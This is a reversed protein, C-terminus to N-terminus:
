CSLIGSQVVVWGSILGLGTWNLGNFGGACIKGLSGEGRGGWRKLGGVELGEGGERFFCPSVYREARRVEGSSQGGRSLLVQGVGRAGAPGDYQAGVARPHHRGAGAEPANPRRLRRRQLDTARHTEQRPLPRIRPNANQQSPQPHPRPHPHHHHTNNDTPRRSSRITSLPSPPAPNPLQQPRRVDDDHSPIYYHLHAAPHRFGSEPVDWVASAGWGM